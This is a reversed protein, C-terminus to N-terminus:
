EEDDRRQQNKKRVIIVVILIILLGTCVRYLLNEWEEGTQPLFPKKTGTGGGSSSSDGAQSSSSDSSSTSPVTDDTGKAIFLWKYEYISEEKFDALGLQSSLKFKATLTREKGSEYLGLELQDKTLDLTSSGLIGGEYILTDDLLLEVEVEKTFDIPGTGEGPEVMLRVDFGEKLNVNRIIIEKVFEEGPMMDTLEILYEGDKEAYFGDTDGIILSPPLASSAEYVDGVMFSGVAVTVILMWVVKIFRCTLKM